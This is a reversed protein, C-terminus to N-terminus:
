PFGAVKVTKPPAQIWGRSGDNFILVRGNKLGNELIKREESAM